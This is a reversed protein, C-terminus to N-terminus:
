PTTEPQASLPIIREIGKIRLLTMSLAGRNAPNSPPNGMRGARIRTHRERDRALRRM